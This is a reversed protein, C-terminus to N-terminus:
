SGAFLEGFFDGVNWTPRNEEQAIVYGTLFNVRAHDAGAGFDFAQSM